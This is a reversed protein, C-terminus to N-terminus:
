VGLKGSHRGHMGQVIKRDDYQSQARRVLIETCCDPVRDGGAPIRIAIACGDAAQKAQGSM